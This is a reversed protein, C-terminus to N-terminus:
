CAAGYAEQRAADGGHCATGQVNGPSAQSELELQQSPMHQQSLVLVPGLMCTDGSSHHGFKLFVRM